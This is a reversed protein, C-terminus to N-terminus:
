ISEFPFVLKRAYAVHFLCKSLAPSESRGNAPWKFILQIHHCVEWQNRLALSAIFIYLGPTWKYTKDPTMLIEKCYYNGSKFFSRRCCQFFYLEYFFFRPKLDHLECDWGQSVANSERFLLRHVGHWFLSSIHWKPAMPELYLCCDGCSIISHEVSSVKIRLSTSLTYIITM